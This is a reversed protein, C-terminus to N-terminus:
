SECFNEFFKEQELVFDNSVYTLLTRKVLAYLEKRSNCYAAHIYSLKLTNIKQNALQAMQCIHTDLFIFQEAITHQDNYFPKNM